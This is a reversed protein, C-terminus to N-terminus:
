VYNITLSHFLSIKETVLLLTSNSKSASPRTQEMYGSEGKRDRNIGNRERKKDEIEKIRITM